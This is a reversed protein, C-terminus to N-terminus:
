QTLDTKTIYPACDLYDFAFRKKIRVKSYRLRKSLESIVWDYWEDHQEQTVPFLKFWEPTKVEEPYKEAVESANTNFYKQLWWNIVDTRTLKSTRKM